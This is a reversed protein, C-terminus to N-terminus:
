GRAGGAPGGCDAIEVLAFLRFVALLCCSVGDAELKVLVANRPRQHEVVVIEDDGSLECRQLDFLRLRARSERRQSGVPGARLPRGSSLSRSAIWGAWSGTMPRIGNPSCRCSFAM